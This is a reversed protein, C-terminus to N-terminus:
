GEASRRPKKTKRNDKVPEIKPPPPVFYMIRACSPCTMIKSHSQLENYLQPPIRMRCAQCTGSTVPAMAKGKHSSASAVFREASAPDISALMADRATRRTALTARASAMFTDVADSLTSHASQAERLRDEAGPLEAKLAEQRELTVMTSEEKEAIRKNINDLEDLVARYAREDTVKTSRSHNGELLDRCSILDLELQKLTARTEKLGEAVMDHEAAIKDLNEQSAALRAPGEELTREADIIEDELKQLLIFKAIVEKM